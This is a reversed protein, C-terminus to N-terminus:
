VNVLTVQQGLQVVHVLLMVIMLIQIKVHIVHHRHQHHHLNVFVAKLVQKLPDILIDESANVDTDKLSMMAYPMEPVTILVLIKVLMIEFVSEDKLEKHHNILIDKSALVNTNTVVLHNVFLQVAANM